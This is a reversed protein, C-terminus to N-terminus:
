GAIETLQVADIDDDLLLLEAGVFGTGSTTAPAAMLVANLSQELTRETSEDPPGDESRYLANLDVAIVGDVGQLLAVIDAATVARGIARADFGYASRLAETAAEIVDDSVYRNDIVLQAHLRFGARRYSSVRVAQVPDKYTRMSGLLDGLTTDDDDVEAGGAVAVTVHVIRREGSWLEVALAKAISAVGRAYDEFDQRSVLRDLTLVTRPANDRADELGEPSAGGTAPHYNISTKLGQPKTKVLRISEAAVNGDPGLGDRLEATVNEVGTPLRAGTRGDGFIVWATGDDDIEIMFVEASPDQGYLRDVATWAVGDVRVVLEAEVGSPSSASTVHTLPARPLQFRQFTRTADGSGLVHARGSAGHTVPVVNAHIEVTTRVYDHSLASTLTIQTLGDVDEVSQVEALEHVPAETHADVGRVLLLQRPEPHPISRDLELVDGSVHSDIPLEGVPLAESQVFAVTHRRSFGRLEDVESPGDLFVRTFGRTLQFGTRTGLEVDAVGVLEDYNGHRLVVWSGVALKDNKGDLDIWPPDAGLEKPIEEDNAKDVEPDALGFGPWQRAAGKPWPDKDLNNPDTNTPNTEPDFITRADRPLATWSPADHGWVGMRNRFVHYTVDEQPPDITYGPRTWGLGRDVTVRTLNWEPLEDVATVIRFEWREDRSNTDGAMRESGVVLVADTPQLRLGLGTLYLAREGRVLRHPERMRPRLVNWEPRATFAEGTEFTQPREGPGPISQFAAAAPVEVTEPARETDDCGLVLFTSAAAGPNLRYGIASALELISRRETATRRYGENVIREQYFTLVDAMSAFADLLALSPDATDRTTLNVLPRTDEYDGDPLAYHPLRAVMADYFTAWTGLRASLAPQGPPNDPRGVGSGRACCDISEDSSSM